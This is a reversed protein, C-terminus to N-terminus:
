FYHKRYAPLMKESNGVLARHVLIQQYCDPEEEESADRLGASITENDNFTRNVNRRRMEREGREFDRTVL